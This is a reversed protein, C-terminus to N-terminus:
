QIYVGAGRDHLGAGRVVGVQMAVGQVPGSQTNQVNVSARRANGAARHGSEPSDIEFVHFLDFRDPKGITASGIYLATGAGTPVRDGSAFFTRRESLEEDANTAVSAILYGDGDSHIGLIQAKLPLSVATKGAALEITTIRTNYHKITKV